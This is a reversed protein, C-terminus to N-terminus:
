GGMKKNAKEWRRYYGSKNRQGDDKGRKGVPKGTKRGRLVGDKDRYFGAKTRESILETEFEAVAGLIHFTLKGAATTTDIYQSVCVFDVGIKYWEETINILHKLSRGLRDLKWAIVLTFLKKRADFLMNNLEPRSSKSGTIVDTYVKYVVYNHSDAYERLIAEQNEPNQEDKSVRCYIAAKWVKPKEDM